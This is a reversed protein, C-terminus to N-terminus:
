KPVKHAQRLSRTDKSHAVCKEVEKTSLLYAQRRIQEYNTGYM